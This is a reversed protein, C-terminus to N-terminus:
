QDFRKGLWYITNQTIALVGLPSMYQVKSTVVEVGDVEGVLKTDNKDFSLEAWNEIKKYPKERMTNSWAWAATVSECLAVSENRERRANVRVRASGASRASTSAIGALVGGIAILRARHIM